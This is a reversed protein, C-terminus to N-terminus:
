FETDLILMHGFVGCDNGVKISIVILHIKNYLLQGFSFNVSSIADSLSCLWGALVRLDTPLTCRMSHKVPFGHNRRSLIPNFYHWEPALSEMLDSLPHTWILVLHSLVTEPPSNFM